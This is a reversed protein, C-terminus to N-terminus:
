LQYWKQELQASNKKKQVIEFIKHIFNKSTLFIKSRNILKLHSIYLSIRISHSKTHVQKIPSIHSDPNTLKVTFQPHLKLHIEQSFKHYISMPIIIIKQDLGLKNAGTNNQWVRYNTANIRANIIRPITYTVRDNKIGSFELIILSQRSCVSFFVMGHVLCKVQNRSISTM